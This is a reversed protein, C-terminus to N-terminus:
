SGLSVMVLGVMVLATGFFQIPQLREGLFVGSIAVVVIFSLSTFPYASSLPLRTMAAMWAFSALLASAYGALIWPDRLLTLLFALKAGFGEGLAGVHLIRVKIVIQGFITLSITLAVAAWATFSSM